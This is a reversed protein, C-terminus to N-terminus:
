MNARVCAAHRVCARRASMLARECACTAGAREWASTGARVKIRARECTRDCACAQMRMSAANARKVSAHASMHVGVSAHTSQARKRECSTAVNEHGRKHPMHPTCSQAYLSAM